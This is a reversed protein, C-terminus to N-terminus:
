PWICDASSSSAGSVCVVISTARSSANTREQPRRDWQSLERGIADAEGDYDLKRLAGCYPREVLRSPDDLYARPNCLIRRLEQPLWVQFERVLRAVSLQGHRSLALRADVVCPSRSVRHEM